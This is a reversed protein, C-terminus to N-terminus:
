PMLRQIKWNNESIKSYVFRDHLGTSRGQWFEVSKATVRYGGWGSPLPIQKDRYVRKIEDMKAILVNRSSIIDSSQSLWAGIQNDRSRSLFYKLSEKASIREATGIIKVQRELDLWSFLLAVHPNEAIQEAKKTDLGSFFTFGRHDFYRLLVIRSSVELSRSVTALSMAHPYHLNVARAQQYWVEFQEIPDPLLKERVLPTDKYEEKLWEASM